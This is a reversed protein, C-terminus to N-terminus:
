VNVMLTLEDNIEKLYKYIKLSLYIFIWAAPSRGSENSQRCCLATVGTFSWPSFFYCFVILNIIIKIYLIPPYRNPKKLQQFHQLDITKSFDFMLLNIQQVFQRNHHCAFVQNTRIEICNLLSLIFIKKKSCLRITTNITTPWKKTKM